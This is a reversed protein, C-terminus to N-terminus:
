AGARHDGLQVLRRAFRGPDRGRGHHRQGRIATEQAAPAAGKGHAIGLACFEVPWDLFVPYGHVALVIDPDAAVALIGLRALVVVLAQLERGVALEQHLDAMRALALAAQVDLVEVMRCPRDIPGGGVLHQDGITIDIAADDHQIGLGPGELPHPAGISLGRVVLHGPLPGIIRHRLLEIQNVAERYRSVADDIDRVAVVIAHLGERQFALEQLLGKHGPFNGHLAEAGDVADGQGTVLRLTIEIDALAMLLADPHEVPLGQLLNRLRCETM